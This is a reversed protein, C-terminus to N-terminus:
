DAEVGMQYRDPVAGAGVLFGDVGDEGGDEFFQGGLQLRFWIVVEVLFMGVMSAEFSRGWFGSTRDRSDLGRFCSVGFLAIEPFKFFSTM